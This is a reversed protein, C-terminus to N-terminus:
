PSQWYKLGGAIFLVNLSWFLMVWPTFAPLLPLPQEQITRVNDLSYDTLRQPTPNQPNARFLASQFSHSRGLWYVTDERSSWHYFWGQASSAPIPILDGGALPIFYAQYDSGISLQVNAFKWQRSPSLSDWIDNQQVLGIQARNAQRTRENVVYVSCCKGHVAGYVVQYHRQTEAPQVWRLLTLAFLSLGMAALTWRLFRM